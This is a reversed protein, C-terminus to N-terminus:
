QGYFPKWRSHQLPTNVPKTRQYTSTRLLPCKYIALGDNQNSKEYVAHNLFPAGASIASASIDVNVEDRSRRVSAEVANGTQRAILWCGM